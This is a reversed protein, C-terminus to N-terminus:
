QQSSGGPAPKAMTTVAVSAFSNNPGKSNNQNSDLISQTGPSFSVPMSWYVVMYRKLTFLTGTLKKCRRLATDLREPQDKLFKEEQIVIEMEASMISKMKETLTPFRSKQEAICKSLQSLTLAMKEVDTSNVRCHKSIVDTRVEEVSNELKTLENDIRQEERIFNSYDTDVDHRQKRVPQISVTFSVRDLVNM